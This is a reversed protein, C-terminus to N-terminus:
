PTTEAASPDHAGAHSREVGSPAALSDPTGRPIFALFYLGLWGLVFLLMYIALVALTGKPHGIADLDVPEHDSVHDSM